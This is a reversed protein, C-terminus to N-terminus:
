SFGRRTEVVGGLGLRVNEMSSLENFELDEVARSYVVGGDFPGYDVAQMEAM